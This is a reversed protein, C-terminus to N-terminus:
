PGNRGRKVGTSAKGIAVTSFERSDGGFGVEPPDFRVLAILTLNQIQIELEIHNTGSSCQTSVLTRFDEHSSAQPLNHRQTLTPAARL